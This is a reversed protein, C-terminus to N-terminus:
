AVRKETAGKPQAGVPPKSRLPLLAKLNKGNSVWAGHMVDLSLALAASPTLLPEERLLEELREQRESNLSSAVTRQVGM